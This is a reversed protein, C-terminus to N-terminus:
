GASNELIRSARGLVADLMDETLRGTFTNQQGVHDHRAGRPRPQAVPQNKARPETNVALSVALWRQEGEPEIRAASRLLLALSGAPVTRANRTPM